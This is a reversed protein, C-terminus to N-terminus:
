LYIEISKMFNSNRSNRNRLRSTKASCLWTKYRQAYSDLDQAQYTRREVHTWAMSGSWKVETDRQNEEEKNDNDDGLLKRSPM